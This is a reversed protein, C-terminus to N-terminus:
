RRTSRPTSTRPRRSAHRWCRASTKSRPADAPPPWNSRWRPSNACCAAASRTANSRLARRMAQSQAVILELVERAGAAAAADDHRAARVALARRIPAAGQLVGEARIAREIFAAEESKGPRDALTFSSKLWDLLDRWYLEDAVLDYWRMLAAAASTTSLKWGTEDVVMVQARELLARVRRATLRDLSVLAM